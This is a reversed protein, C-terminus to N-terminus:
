IGGISTLTGDVDTGNDRVTNNRRTEVTGQNQIGTTNNTFTSNLIRVLSTDGVALGIGNDHAVSSEMTMTGSSGALFGISTNDAAVTAMVSVFADQIFIGNGNGSATSRSITGGGGQILLGASGNNEFRSNDITVRSAAAAIRFGINGNDRSISDLVFVKVGSASAAIGSAAFGHVLCREIHVAAAETIRIGDAITGQGNLTLGRLTVVAGAANINIPNGLLVTHGGGSIMLSKTITANKGFFGSDLVRIEGGDPTVRIGHQLSRCPAALTCANTNSGTISVYRTNDAAQAALSCAAATCAALAFTAVFRTRISM